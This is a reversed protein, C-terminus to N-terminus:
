DSAELAGLLDACAQSLDTPEEGSLRLYLRSALVAREAAQISRVRLAPRPREQALREQHMALAEGHGHAALWYYALALQSQEIGFQTALDEPARELDEADLPIFRGLLETASAPAMPRLPNGVCQLASLTLPRRLGQGGIVQVHWSGARAAWEYLRPGREGELGATGALRVCEAAIAWLDSSTQHGGALSRCESFPEGRSQLRLSNAQEYCEAARLLDAESPESHNKSAEWQDFHARALWILGMVQQEVDLNEFGGLFDAELAALDAPRGILASERMRGLAEFAARWQPGRGGEQRSKLLELEFRGRAPIKLMGRGHLVELRLSVRVDTPGPEAGGSPASDDSSPNGSELRAVVWVQATAGDTYPTLLEVSEVEVIRARDWNALELPERLLHYRELAVGSDQVLVEPVVGSRWQASARNSLMWEVDSPDALLGRYAGVDGELFAAGARGVFQEVLAGQLEIPGDGFGAFAVRDDGNLTLLELQFHLAPSGPWSAEFTLFAVDDYAADYVDLLEELDYADFVLARRSGPELSMQERASTVGILQLSELDVFPFIARLGQRLPALEDVVANSSESLYALDEATPEQPTDDPFRRLQWAWAEQRSFVLSRFRREDGRKLADTVSRALDELSKARPYVPWGRDQPFDDYYAQAGGTYCSEDVETAFAALWAHLRYRMEGTAGEEPAVSVRFELSPGWREELLEPRARSVYDWSRRPSYAFGPSPAFGEPRQLSWGDVAAAFGNALPELSELWRDVDEPDEVWVESLEVQATGFNGNYTYYGPAMLADIRPDEEPKPLREGVPRRLAFTTSRVHEGHLGKFSSEVAERRLEAVVERWVRQDILGDGQALAVSVPGLLWVALWASIKM